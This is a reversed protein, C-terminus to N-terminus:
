PMCFTLLALSVPVLPSHRWDRVTLRLLTMVTWGWLLTMIGSGVWKPFLLFFPILLNPLRINDDGYHERWTDLIGGWPIGARVVNGGNEPFDIGQSAFWPRLHVMYMYDDYYKPMGIFFVGMGAVTMLWLVTNFVDGRKEVRMDTM